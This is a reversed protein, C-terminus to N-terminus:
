KKEHKVQITFYIMKRFATAFYKRLDKITEM